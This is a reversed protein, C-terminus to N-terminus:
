GLVGIVTVLNTQERSQYLRDLVFINNYLGEKTRDSKTSINVRTHYSLVAKPDGLRTLDRPDNTGKRPSHPVRGVVSGPLAVKTTM